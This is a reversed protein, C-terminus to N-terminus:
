LSGVRHKFESLLRKVRPQRQATGWVVVPYQPDNSLNHCGPEYTVWEDLNAILCEKNGWASTIINEFGNIELFACLGQQSWRRYDQPLPHYKILFPLTILFTGKPKLMRRVHGAARDPYRLHEFVQEAIILDFKEKLSQRCIDFEPFEVNRYSRFGFDAWANGSIELVNLSDPQMKAIRETVSDNM